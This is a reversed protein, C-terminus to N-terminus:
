CFLKQILGNKWVLTNSFELELVEIKCDIASLFKAIRKQEDPSPINVEMEAFVSIWHRGHAGTTYKIMQLAEFMFKIDNGNKATLIKLASSKTKFPFNVFQSATTFDDFIIVPLIEEYIGFDENTYGLIFSKGATVVPTTYKDDYDTSTVIYKTPQIYNLCDGLKKPEWDSFENGNKDKLRMKQSFLKQMVGKKYEELLNIKCELTKLKEDVVSLFCAIKTQEDKSPIILKLNEFERQGLTKNRGAGGPSALELLSKGKKTLFFYVLYDLDAENIKPAYMPFRHSAIMGIEKKTTKAVAQEWAFVINVIFVDEKVWFVRKNGLTRGDVLEKHFIGKGHSRIGIQQYLEDEKVEVPNSIRNTLEGFKKNAWKESFNPFRLQPINNQKEM